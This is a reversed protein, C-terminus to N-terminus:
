LLLLSLASIPQMHFTFALMKVELSNLGDSLIIEKGFLGEYDM